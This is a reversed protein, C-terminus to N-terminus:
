PSLPSRMMSSVAELPVLKRARTHRSQSAAVASAACAPLRTTITRVPSTSDGAPPSNPRDRGSNERPRPARSPLPRQYMGQILRSSWM